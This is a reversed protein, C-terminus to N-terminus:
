RSHANIVELFADGFRELKSPGVGSIDLMEDEDSPRETALAVLTTDPFVVYPPVGLDKSIDMRVARLAQFLELDAGEM